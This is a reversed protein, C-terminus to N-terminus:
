TSDVPSNTKMLKEMRKRFWNARRCTTERLLNLLKLEVSVFHRSVACLRLNEYNKEKKETEEWSKRIIGRRARRRWKEEAEVRKATILKGNLSRCTFNHENIPSLLSRSPKKESFKVRERFLSKRGVPLWFCLAGLWSFSILQMEKIHHKSQVDASPM